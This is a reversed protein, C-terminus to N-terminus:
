NRSRKLAQAAKNLPHTRTSNQPERENTTRLDSPMDPKAKKALQQYREKSIKLNRESVSLLEEIHKFLEQTMEPTIEKEPTKIRGNVRATGVYLSDQRKEEMSTVLRAIDAKGKLVLSETTLTKLLTSTVEELKAPGEQRARRVVLFMALLHHKPEHSTLIPLDRKRLRAKLDKPDLDTKWVIDAINSKMLEEIAAVGLTFARPSNREKFLLRAELYLDSANAYGLRAIELYESPFYRTEKM